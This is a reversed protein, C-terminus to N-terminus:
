FMWKTVEVILTGLLGGMWTTVMDKWDFKSHDYLDYLEKAMGALVPVVLCNLPSLFFGCALAIILGAAFHLKKDTAM